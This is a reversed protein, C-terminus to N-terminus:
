TQNRQELALVDKLHKQHTERVDELRPSFGPYIWGCECRGQAFVRHRGGRSLTLKHGKLKLFPSTM